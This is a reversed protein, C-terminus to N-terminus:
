SITLIQGKPGYLQVFGLPIRSLASIYEVGVKTSHYLWFIKKQFYNKKSKKGFFIIKLIPWSKKSMRYFGFKYQAQFKNWSIIAGSTLFIYRSEWTTTWISNDPYLKDILAVLIPVRNKNRERYYLDAISLIFINVKLHLVITSKIVNLFFWNLPFPKQNTKSLCILLRNSSIRKDPYLWVSAVVYLDKQSM